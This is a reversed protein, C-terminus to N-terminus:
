NRSPFIGTTAICWTMVLYPSRNEHPLGGVTSITAANLNTPNAGSANYITAAGATTALLHGNPVAQNSASATARLQHTHTPVETPVLTHQETGGQQGLQVSAQGGVGVPTRGQLNPLAFTRIGDGGYYTGLVSFLAQYQNIPLLQGNCQVWGKPAFNFPFLMLQGLYYSAM